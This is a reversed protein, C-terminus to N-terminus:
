IDGTDVFTQLLGILELALEKDIHMRSTLLVDPHMPVKAWGTGGDIVKSAMIKPEPYDIGLWLMDRMASSSKQASCAAGNGDSFESLSFGRGTKRKKM